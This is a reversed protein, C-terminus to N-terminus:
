PMPFALYRFIGAPTVLGVNLVFHTASTLMHTEDDAPVFIDCALGLASKPLSMVSVSLM